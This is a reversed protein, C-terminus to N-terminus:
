YTGYGGGGRGGGGGGGGGSGMGPAYYGPQPPAGYAPPGGRAQQQQGLEWGRPQSHRYICDRRSCSGRDREAFCPNSSAGGGRQGAQGGGRGQQIQFGGRGGGRVWGVSPAPALTAGGALSRAICDGLADREREAEERYLYAHPFKAQLYLWLVSAQMCRELRDLPPDAEGSM